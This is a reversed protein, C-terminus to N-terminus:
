VRIPYVYVTRSVLVLYLYPCVSLWGSLCVCLCVSLCVSPCQRLLAARIATSSQFRECRNPHQANRPRNTDTLRTTSSSAKTSGDATAPSYPLWRLRRLVSTPTRVSLSRSGLCSVQSQPNYVIDSAGYTRQVQRRM